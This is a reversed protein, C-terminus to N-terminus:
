SLIGVIGVFGSVLFSAQFIVVRFSKLTSIREARTCAECVSLPADRLRTDVKSLEDGSRWIEYPM